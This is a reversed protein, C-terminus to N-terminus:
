RHFLRELARDDLKVRTPRGHPCYNSHEVELMEEILGTMEAVSLPDGAKIAAKCSVMARLKERVVDAPHQKVSFTESALQEALSRVVEPARGAKVGLPVSRLQFSNGGFPEVEFGLEQLQACAGELAAAQAATFDMVEPVLLGQSPGHLPQLHALKEYWIREHATHQDVIWLQGDVRAM